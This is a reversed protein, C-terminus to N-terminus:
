AQLYEDIATRFRNFIRISFVDDDLTIEPHWQVAMIFVDSGEPSEVAEIFGEPAYASPILGDALRDICQHHYSDVPIDGGMIQHLMTGSVIRVDHYFPSEYGKPMQHLTGYRKPIHQVLTGGMATNIFQCGRCIGLIPMKRVMAARFLRIQLADLAHDVNGCEPEREAGYFAPDVDVGGPILLADLGEVIQEVQELPTTRSIVLAEAGIREIGKSYGQPVYEGEDNKYPTIGIIPRRESM